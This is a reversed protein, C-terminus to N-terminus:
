KMVKLTIPEGMLSEIKIQRGEADWFSGSVDAGVVMQGRGLRTSGMEAKLGMQELMEPTAASLKRGLGRDTWLHASEGAEGAEEIPIVAAVGPVNRLEDLAATTLAPPKKSPSGSSKGSQEVAQAMPGTMAGSVNIRKQGSINGMSNTASRQLGAGLSVLVMVAMTGIVVGFATLAVRGRMRNLNAWVTRLWDTFYM